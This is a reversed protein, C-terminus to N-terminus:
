NLTDINYYNGLSIMINMLQKMENKLREVDGEKEWNAKTGIKELLSIEQSIEGLEEVMAIVMEGPNKFPSKIEQKEM